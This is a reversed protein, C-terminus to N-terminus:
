RSLPLVLSAGTPGVPQGPEQLVLNKQTAPSSIVVDGSLLRIDFTIYEIETINLDVYNCLKLATFPLASVYFIIGLWGMWLKVTYM